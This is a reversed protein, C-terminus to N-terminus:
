FTETKDESVNAKKKKKKQYNYPENCLICGKNSQQM